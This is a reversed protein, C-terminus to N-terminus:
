AHEDWSGLVEDLPPPADARTHLIETTRSELAHLGEVFKAIEELMRHCHAAENSIVAVGIEARQHVDLSGVEAVAANFRASTRDVIRRVVSRKAKLSSVGPLAFM